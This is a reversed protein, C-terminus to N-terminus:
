VGGGATLTEVASARIHALVERGGEATASARRELLQLKLAYAVVRDLAFPHGREIDDLLAWRARDLLDAAALPSAQGLAERALADCAAIDAGGNQVAAPPVARVHHEPDTGRAQARERALANRLATEWRHWRLVAPHRTPPAGVDLRAFVEATRHHSRRDRRTPPAGVDLRAAAFARLDAPSLEGACMARLQQSTIPPPADFELAPLSAVLFYYRSM